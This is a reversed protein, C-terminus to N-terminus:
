SVRMAGALHHQSRDVRAASPRCRSRSCTRPARRRPARSTSATRAPAPASGGAGTPPRWRAGAPPLAPRDRRAPRGRGDRAHARARRGVPGGRVRGLRRRRLRAGAGVVLSRPLRRGLEERRVRGRRRPQLRDGGAVVGGRVDAAFLHPHWYQSLGPLAHAGGLGGFARRPWAVPAAIAADVRCDPGLDLRVHDAGASFAAGARVGYGAPDARADQLAAWRFFGGPHAALGSSRGRARRQARPERRVHRDRRPRTAAQTFRWFYGEM